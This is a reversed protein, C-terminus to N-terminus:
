QKDRSERSFTEQRSLWSQHHARILAIAEDGNAACRPVDMDEANALPPDTSLMSSRAQM